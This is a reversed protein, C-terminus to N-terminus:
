DNARGGFPAGLQIPPGNLLRDAKRKPDIQAREAIKVSNRMQIWQPRALRHM